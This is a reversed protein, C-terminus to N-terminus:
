RRAVAASKTKTVPLALLSTFEEGYGAQDTRALGGVQVFSGYVPGTGDAGAPLIRFWVRRRKITLSAMLGMLLTIAFVLAYGQAPDYSTQMSVWEKYGTFEIVTGDDITMSEGTSLNARTLKKLEGNAVQGPDIAYVSQAAGDELGLNGRYIQIAVGPNDPAPFGSTMINTGHSMVATPAFIGVIALQRNRVEKGVYGPPDTIKVAGESTLNGDQTQFPQEYERMQGNPYTVKFTPTFGHGILYLREGDVRLPDNVRLNYQQPAASASATYTLDSSFSSAMGNPNYAATFKDVTACFPAMATGDVLLGPRFNDYAAPSGSCFTQGETVILSGEFGFMKGVAIAALLGLLSVHFVLNGVERLYGKEASVTVVGGPESRRTLRWGRLGAEIQGAVEDPNRKDALRVQGHHPLRALNRPTAVPKSRIQGVFEWSRPVLCGILSIFLLLYIAAYWPSGFVGFFGLRNLWPGLTPYDLIYQATKATNLNWQPLLAGPLSALALMFLLILAVRM